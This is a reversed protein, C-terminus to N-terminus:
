ATEIFVLKYAKPMPALGNKDIVLQEYFNCNTCRFINNENSKDRFIEDALKPM